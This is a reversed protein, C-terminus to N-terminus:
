NLCLNQSRSVFYKSSCLMKLTMKSHRIVAFKTAYLLQHRLFSRINSVGLCKATLLYFSFHALYRNTTKTTKRFVFCFIFHRRLAYM